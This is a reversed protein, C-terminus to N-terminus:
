HSSLLFFFYEDQLGKCERTIKKEIGALKDSVMKAFKDELQHCMDVTGRVLVVALALGGRVRGLLQGMSELLREAIGSTELMAGMFIFAPIALLTFNAMIGMIRQPLATVFIPDIQGLAMGLLSFVVAVGGLCFAVPYGSLLIIVLALFMGPGLFLTPDLSIVYGLLEIEIM